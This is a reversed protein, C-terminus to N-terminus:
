RDVSIRSNVLSSCSSATQRNGGGGTDMMMVKCTLVALTKRRSSTSVFVTARSGYRGHSRRRRRLSLNARERRAQKSAALASKRMTPAENRAEWSAGCQSTSGEADFMGALNGLPACRMSRRATGRTQSHRLSGSHYPELSVDADRALVSSHDGHTTMSSSTFVVHSVTGSNNLSNGCDDERYARTCMNSSIQSTSRKV